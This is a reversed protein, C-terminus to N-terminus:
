LFFGLLLITLLLLVGTAFLGLDTLVRRRRSFQGIRALAEPTM